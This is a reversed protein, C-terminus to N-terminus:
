FVLCQNAKIDMRTTFIAITFRSRMLESLFCRSNISLLSHSDKKASNSRIDSFCSGSCFAIKPNDKIM